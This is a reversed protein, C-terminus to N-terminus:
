YITRVAQQLVLVGQRQGSRKHLVTVEVLTGYQQFVDRVDEETARFPIMGVFLKPDGFPPVEGDAHKVQLFTKLPPLIRKNHLGEIAADASAPEAFLVFAAGRGQGSVRCFLSSMAACHLGDM